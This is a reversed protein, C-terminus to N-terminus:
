TKKTYVKGKSIRFETLNITKYKEYEILKEEKLLNLAKNVSPKSVNLKKAVDTVRAGKDNNLIYITKLYYELSVSIKIISM